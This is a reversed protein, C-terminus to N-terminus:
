HVPDRRGTTVGYRAQTVSPPRGVKFPGNFLSSWDAQSLDTTKGDSSFGRSLPVWPLEPPIEGRERVPVEPHPKVWLGVSGLEPALHDEPEFTVDTGGFRLGSAGELILAINAEPGARRAAWGILSTAEYGRQQWGFPTADWWDEFSSRFESLSEAPLYHAGRALSEALITGAPILQAQAPEISTFSGDFAALHPRWPRQGLRRASKKGKPRLIRAAASTRYLSGEDGLHDVVSLLETPSGEVLIAEAKRRLPDLVTQPVEDGAPYRSVKLRGGFTRVATRLVDVATDGTLGDSAVVGITRYGRDGRLYAVLRRAEWELPPAVQFLHSRLLGASFLDGSTLVGPIGALALSAGAPPLGELPGAYVVGVTRDSEALREVMQTARAPDGEDDLSVLQFPLSGAPREQNLAHVALDAGEFAETGRRGEPGSMTGVLGIVPGADSSPTAAPQRVPFAESGPDADCASLLVLCTVALGATMRRDM